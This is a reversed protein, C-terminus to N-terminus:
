SRLLSAVHPSSFVSPTSHSMETEATPEIFGTLLFSSGAWFVGGLIHIVRLVLLLTLM